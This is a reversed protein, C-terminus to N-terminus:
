KGLYTNIFRRILERDDAVRGVAWGVIGLLIVFMTKLFGITMFLVGLIILIFTFFIKGRHNRFFQRDQESFM